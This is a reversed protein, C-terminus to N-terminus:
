PATHVQELFRKHEKDEGRVPLVNRPDIGLALLTPADLRGTPVLGRGRQFQTLATLTKDDFRGTFDAAFGQAILSRQVLRMQEASLDSPNTTSRPDAAIAAGARPPAAASEHSADGALVPVAALTLLSAAIIRTM